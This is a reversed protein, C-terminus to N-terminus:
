ASQDAWNCEMTSFFLMAMAMAIPCAAVHRPQRDESLPDQLPCAALGQQESKQWAAVQQPHHGSQLEGRRGSVQQQQV